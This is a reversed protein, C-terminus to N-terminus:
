SETIEYSEILTSAVLMDWFGEITGRQPGKINYVRTTNKDQRETIQYNM